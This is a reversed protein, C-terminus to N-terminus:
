FYKKIKAKIQELGELGEEYGENLLDLLRKTNNDTRGVKLKKKPRIIIAKGERELQECLEIQRNYKEHRTLMAEILGPYKKYYNNLIKKFKFPSKRYDENRTLVIVHFTNGDEISKEIPIPCSIGGDLLNYNKYHVIPSVFPVSCSAIISDLSSLIDKNNFWVTKGTDCDMAGALYKVKHKKFIERDWFCHKEPIINFVYDYGFYSKKTILNKISLYESKKVHSEIIIKSRGRQGSIYSLSNAAGASVGIIYPFMISEKMFAEFVGCSYFGRTGGGELVLSWGDPLMTKMKEGKIVEDTYKVM